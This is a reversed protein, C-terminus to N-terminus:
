DHTIKKYRQNELETAKEDTLWNPLLHEEIRNTAIGRLIWQSETDDNSIKRLWSAKYIREMISPEALRCDLNRLDIAVDLRVVKRKVRSNHLM